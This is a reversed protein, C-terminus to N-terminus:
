KGTQQCLRGYTWGGNSRSRAVRWLQPRPQLSNRNENWICIYIYKINKTYSIFTSYTSTASWQASDTYCQSLRLPYVRSIVRAGPFLLRPNWCMNDALMHFHVLLFSSQLTAKNPLSQPTVGAVPCPVSCITHCWATDRCFGKKTTKQHVQLSCIPHYWAIDRCFGTKTTKKTLKYAIDGLGGLWVFITALWHGRCFTKKHAMECHSTHMSKKITERKELSEQICTLFEQSTWGLWKSNQQQSLGQM